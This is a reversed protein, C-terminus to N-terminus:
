EWGLGEILLKRLPSSFCVDNRISTGNLPAPTVLTVIDRPSGGTAYRELRELAAIESLNSLTYNLSVSFIVLRGLIVLLRSKPYFDGNPQSIWM